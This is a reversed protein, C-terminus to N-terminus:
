FYKSPTCGLERKFMDIFASVSNYGLDIAVNTVSEGVGLKEIAAQLLLRKRWAGYNFGTEKVFLRAITRASACAIEAFDSIDRSDAPNNVLIDMIRQLRKDKSYPLHLMTHPANAIEDILVLMIRFNSDNLSYQNNIDSARNMLEKFLPSVKLVACNKPLNGCYEPDIFFTKLIVDGSFFVNHMINPAIWVAQLPPVVWVDNDCVLKMVGKSLFLIQGRPHSHPAASRANSVELIMSIVPMDKNIIFGTKIPQMKPMKENNMTLIYCSLWIFSLYFEM